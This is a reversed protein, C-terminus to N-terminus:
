HSTRKIRPLGKELAALLPKPRKSRPTPHSDRPTPHNDRSLRLDLSSQKEEEPFGRSLKIRILQNETKIHEIEEILKTLENRYYDVRMELEKRDAAVAALEKEQTALRQATREQKEKALLVKRRLEVVEAQGSVGTQV